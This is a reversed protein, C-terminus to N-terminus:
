SSESCHDRPCATPLVGCIEDYERRLEVMVLRVMACRDLLESSHINDSCRAYPSLELFGDSVSLSIRCGELAWASHINM